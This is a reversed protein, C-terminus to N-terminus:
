RCDRLIASYRWRSSYLLLRSILFKPSRSQTTLRSWGRFAHQAVSVADLAQDISASASEGVLDRIDSPYINRITDAGSGWEGAILNGKVDM